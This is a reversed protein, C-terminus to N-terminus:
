DKLSKKLMRIEKLLANFQQDLRAYKPDTSSLYSLEGLVAQQETELTMLRQQLNASDKKLEIRGNWKGSNERADNWQAQQQANSKSDLPLEHGENVKTLRKDAFILSGSTVKRIFYRDHSSVLLSGSYESLVQELQERSALDLHNTPEDCILLQMDSHMLLVLKLKIREGMSLSGIWAKWHAKTFGLQSMQSRYVGQEKFNTTNMLQEVTKKEDLDFVTQALYGIRVGPSLWLEGEYSEQGLLMKIFTTKGTGNDGILAIKEGHLMTFNADQWLLKRVHKEMGGVQQKQGENVQTFSKGLGKAELLRKGMKAMSSLQFHVSYEESPKEVGSEQLQKELQMRRSKVQKDMRKAAKRYYEKFGEQKTSEKHAKSSWSEWEAMQAEMQRRKKEQEEYLHRKRAREQERWQAYTSYNGTFIQIEGEEIAWITDVTEDLFARDHSIMLVAGAFAAIQEALLQQAKRDLHNTPEDLLLFNAQKAFGEALRARLQEGGSLLNFSLDPVHWRSQWESSVASTQFAPDEQQVFAIEPLQHWQMRGTTAEQSGALVSMLISKGSGNAGILGIRANREIHAHFGAFLVRDALEMGLNILQVLM